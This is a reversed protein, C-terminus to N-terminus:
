NAAVKVGKAAMEIADAVVEPHAIYLVHSGPVDIIKSGAREAMKRQAAAPIIQDDASVVFWSPKTKWAAVTIPTNGGAASPAIQTEAMFAAVDRPLDPAFAALFADKKLFLFGDASPEVPPPPGGEVATFASQGVDPALASVYVLGVVKPDDGAETIVLGGYSHGVLIVPGDQRALIRDTAAVDDALTTLPDQVISVNYGRKKLISYVGQWSSGDAWYGHVLVVNKVGTEAGWSPQATMAAVAAVGAALAMLSHTM